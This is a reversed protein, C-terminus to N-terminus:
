SRSLNDKTVFKAALLTWIYDLHKLHIRSLEYTFLINKFADLRAQYYNIPNITEEATTANADQSSGLFELLENEKETNFATLATHIDQDKVTSKTVILKSIFQYLLDLLVLLSARQFNASFGKNVYKVLKNDMEGDDEISLKKLDEPIMKTKFGEDLEYFPNQKNKTLVIARDLVLLSWFSKLHCVQLQEIHENKIEKSIEMNLTKTAYDIIKTTPDCGNYEVYDIVIGLM